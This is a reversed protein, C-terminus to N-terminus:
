ESEENGTDEAGEPQSEDANEQSFLVGADAEGSEVKEFIDAVGTLAKLKQPDFQELEGLWKSMDMDNIKQTATDILANIKDFLKNAGNEKAISLQKAYEISERTWTELEEVADSGIQKKLFSMFDHNHVIAVIADLKEPFKLDTFYNVLNIAFADDMLYPRYGDSIVTRTVDLVFAAREDTKLSKKVLFTFQESFNGKYTVSEADVMPKLNPIAVRKEKTKETQTNIQGPM